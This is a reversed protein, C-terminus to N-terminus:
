ENHYEKLFNIIEEIDPVESIPYIKRFIIKGDPNIIVNARESFGDKERFLGFFIQWMVM